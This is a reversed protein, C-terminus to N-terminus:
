EQHVPVPRAAAKLLAAILLALVLVLLHRKGLNLAYGLDNRHIYFTWYSFVPALGARIAPCRARISVNGLAIAGNFVVCFLALLPWGGASWMQAWINSAIGYEIEPFLAPQFVSNFSVVEAGLEPAFLLFQYFSSLVHDLSTVFRSAIVDNLIQQIAFPESQTFALMLQDPDSLISWVLDWMGLKAAAIAYKYIFMSAGFLLVAVILAWHTAGLRHPGRASLALALVSLVAM